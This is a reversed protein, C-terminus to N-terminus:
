WVFWNNHIRIKSQFNCVFSTFLLWQASSSIRRAFLNGPANNFRMCKPSACHSSSRSCSLSDITSGSSSSSSHQATLQPRKDFRIANELAFGLNCAFSSSTTAAPLPPPPMELQWDSLCNGGNDVRFPNYPLRAPPASSTPSLSHSTSIECAARKPQSIWGDATTSHSSCCNCFKVKKRFQPSGLKNGIVVVAATTAAAAVVVVSAICLGLLLGRPNSAAKTKIDQRQTELQIVNLKAGHRARPSDSGLIIILFNVGMTTNVEKEAAKKEKGWHLGIAMSISGFSRNM